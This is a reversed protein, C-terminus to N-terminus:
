MAAVVTFENLCSFTTFAVQQLEFDGDSHPLPTFHSELHHVHDNSGSPCTLEDRLRVSFAGLFLFYGVM